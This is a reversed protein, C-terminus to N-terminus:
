NKKFFDLWSNPTAPSVEPLFESQDRISLACFSIGLMIDVHIFLMTYSKHNKTQKKSRSSNNQVSKYKIAKILIYDIPSIEGTEYFFSHKAGGICVIQESSELYDHFLSIIPYKVLKVM